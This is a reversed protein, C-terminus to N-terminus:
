SDVCSAYIMNEVYQAINSKPVNNSFLEYAAISIRCTVDGCCFLVGKETDGDMREWPSAGAKEGELRDIPVLSEIEEAMFGTMEIEVGVDILAGIEALLVDIDYEAWAASRNALLRFAKVQTETLDDAVVVPVSELGLQLAAKYRLHGDVIEGSSTAVIPIRFGYETISGAMRDVHADNKRPNREYPQLRDLPWYKIAIKGM